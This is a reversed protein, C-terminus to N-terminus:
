FQFYIFETADNLKVLCSLFLLGIVGAVLPTARWAPGPADAAPTKSAPFGKSPLALNVGRMFEHTNPMAQTIFLLIPLLVVVHWKHIHQLQAFTVEWGMASLGDLWGVGSLAQPLVLGNLGALGSFVADVAERNEARFFILSFVLFLMTLIWGAWRPMPLCAHRWAQNVTMAAGHLTGFIIYNWGAGHWLGVIIFTIMLPLAVAAAFSATRGFKRGMSIRMFAMGLPNYLYDMILRSLTIHWRRWFDLISAAKLPSAFNVPLRIGFMWALGIAMDSYGSFDFYIQFTYCLVASWAELFSPQFGALAAENFVPAVSKSLTDAILVKKSLGIIFVTVGVALNTTLLNRRKAAFQPMMEAHHVIPGAILQPFFAVFLAYNWFTLETKLPKGYRLDM